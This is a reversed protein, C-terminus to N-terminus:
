PGILPIVRFGGIGVRVEVAGTTLRLEIVDTVVCMVVMAIM